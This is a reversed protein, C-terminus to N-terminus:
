PDSRQFADASPNEEGERPGERPPGNPVAPSGTRRGKEDKAAERTTAIPNLNAAFGGLLSTRSHQSASPAAHVSGISSCSRGCPVDTTRSKPRYPSAYDDLSNM